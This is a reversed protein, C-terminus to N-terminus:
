LHYQEFQYPECEKCSVVTFGSLQKDDGYIAALYGTGPAALGNLIGIAGVTLVGHSDRALMIPCDSSAMVENVIVRNSIISEVAVPDSKFMMNMLDALKKADVM